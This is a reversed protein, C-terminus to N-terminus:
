SVPKLPQVNDAKPLVTVSQGGLELWRVQRKLIAVALDDPLNRFIYGSKDYATDTYIIAIRDFGLTKQLLDLAEIQEKNMPTVSM